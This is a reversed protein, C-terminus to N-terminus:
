DGGTALQVLLIANLLSIVVGIAVLAVTTIRRNVYSGVVDRRATLMILPFIAFPLQLSLGAQSVILVQYPEFGAAIVLLAPVVTIARRVFLGIRFETFGEIIFQGALTATSSSSLGSALLAMAFVFGSLEGVLPTLTEHAQELSTVAIGASFFAGAAMVVIASNILWAINLALVSDVLTGRLVRRNALENDTTRRSLVVGSHLYINHPMVTAGLMAMAVLLQESGLHPIVMGRALAGWDAGVLKVEILYGVGVIGILALIVREVPQYGYRYLGLIVFVAATALLAGVILPLHFLLAFGLAAGLFEALDTAMAAAEATLWLGLAVPRPFYRRCNAPYSLGTAIGLKASVTQLLLAMLNSALLVWLLEYGFRSGAEIDTAWNGPDMYGVSVLFGPGIFPLIRRVARPLWYHQQPAIQILRPAPRDTLAPAPEYAPRPAPVAM